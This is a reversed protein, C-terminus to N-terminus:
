KRKYGMLSEERNFVNKGTVYDIVDLTTTRYSYPVNEECWTRYFSTMAIGITLGVVFNGAKKLREKTKEKM